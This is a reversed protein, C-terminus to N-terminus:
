ITVPMLNLKIGHLFEISRCYKSVRTLRLNHRAVLDTLWYPIRENVKIEMIVWGEPLMPLLIGDEHLALNDQRCTIHSDFTVRLGIDFQMNIFAQRKYRVISTPQLNYQWLFAMIEEMTAQEIEHCATMRRQNCLMLADEYPLVVRRKQTVRDVRQKIEVFVPSQMQLPLGKYYHRIRLKRRYKLGNVKEWYCRQDPSDYYLNEVEYCGSCCGNEDSTMYTKIDQRIAQAQTITIVYKLEFRNFMRISHSLSDM